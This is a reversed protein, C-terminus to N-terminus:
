TQLKAFKRLGFPLSFKSFNLVQFKGMPLSETTLVAGSEMLERKGCPSGDPLRYNGMLIDDGQDTIAWEFNLVVENGGIVNGTGDEHFYLQKDNSLDEDSVVNFSWKGIIESRDM